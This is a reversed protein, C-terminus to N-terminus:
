NFDKKDNKKCEFCKFFYNIKIKLKKIGLLYSDCDDCKDNYLGESLNDFLSSLSISMLRFSDILKIKETITKGNDLEKKIPVSFTIYKETNEGLCEFQGKFEKALENIIFYYDYKSGNYFVLPIEKPTKYRLNCIDHAAGRYKGTFHSDDRVKHYKKIITMLVLDKKAYIVYKKSIIYKKEENALPIM